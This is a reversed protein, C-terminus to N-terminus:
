NLIWGATLRNTFSVVIIQRYPTLIGSLKSSCMCSTSIRKNLAVFYLVMTTTTLDLLRSQLFIEFTRNRQCSASIHSFYIADMNGRSFYILDDQEITHFKEREALIPSFKSNILTSDRFYVYLKYM